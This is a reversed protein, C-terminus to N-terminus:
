TYLYKPSSGPLFSGHLEGRGPVSSGTNCDPHLPPIRDSGISPIQVAGTPFMYFSPSGKSKHSNRLMFPYTRIQKFSPEGSRKKFRQLALPNLIQFMTQRSLPSYSAYIVTASTLLTFGRTLFDPTRKLIVPRKPKGKKIKLVVRLWAASM